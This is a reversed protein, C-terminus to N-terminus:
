LRLVWELRAGYGFEDDAPAGQVSREDGYKGFLDGRIVTRRGLAQQLQLGTATAREGIDDSAYRGGLELTLQTRNDNFFMQYGLAGGWADDAGNSLAAGYRGLAVSAFLIGAPGLPGGVDAARSASRFHDLAGFATLYLHSNTGRPMYSFESFLLTGNRNNETEDGSRTSNLVRLTSNILGLRQTAGLGSYFGRGAEDDADVYVFDAELTTARFDLENFSGYLASSSDDDALNRRNLENWGWILASRWNVAWSPKLNIKSLGLSDVTDNILMGDQFSLPQRGVAIAIDLGHKDRPDLFPLMQGIDGEFFLTEISANFEEDLDGEEAENAGNASFTYRTFDGRHDLPRFGILIRETRTLNLNGFLDFRNAWETVRRESDDFTQLATRYTGWVVLSPQLVMGGPLTAGAWIPGRGFFSDGLELIPKPRAPISDIQLPLVEDTIRSSHESDAWAPLQLILASLVAALCLLKKM